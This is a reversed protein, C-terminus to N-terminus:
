HRVIMYLVNQLHYESTGLISRLKKTTQDNVALYYFDGSTSSHKKVSFELLENVKIQPIYFIDDSIHDQLGYNIVANDASLAEIPTLTVLKSYDSNEVDALSYDIEDDGLAFRSIKFRGEAMRKRGLDTLIADLIITGSNDLFAM